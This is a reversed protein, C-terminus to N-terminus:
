AMYGSRISAGIVAMAFGAMAVALLILFAYPREELTLQTILSAEESLALWAYMLEALHSSIPSRTNTLHRSLAAVYNWITTRPRFMCLAAHGQLTM